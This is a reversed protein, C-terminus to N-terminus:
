RVGGFVAAHATPAAGARRWEEHDLSIGPKVSGAERFKPDVSLKGTRRDVHALLVRPEGQESSNIVIRDSGRDVAIWHPYFASDV